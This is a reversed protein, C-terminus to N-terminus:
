IIEKETSKKIFDVNADSKSFLKQNLKLAVELIKERMSENMSKRENEIDLMAKHKIKEAEDKAEDVIEKAEEKAIIGAENKIFHSEKKAEDIIDRAEKKAEDKIDHLIIHAEELERRKKEESTLYKLYPKFLFKNLIFIIVAINILQIIFSGLNVFSNM